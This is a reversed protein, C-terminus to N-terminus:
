RSATQQIHRLNQNFNSHIRHSAAVFVSTLAVTALVIYMMTGATRQTARAGVVAVATLALGLVASQLPTPFSPTTFNVTTTPDADAAVAAAPTVFLAAALLLGSAIRRM